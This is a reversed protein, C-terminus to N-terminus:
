YDNTKELRKRARRLRGAISEESVGLTRAIERKTLGQLRMDVVTREAETLVNLLEEYDVWDVDSDGVLTDGLTTTENDLDSYEYELSYIFKQRNRREFEKCIEFHIGKVAYSSFIGKNEDWANAAKCLGLMGVQVLDEDTIYRPFRTHIVYYVLNMNDEILQQVNQM